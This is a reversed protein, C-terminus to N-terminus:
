IDFIRAVTKNTIEALEAVSIGYIEAVFTAIDKIHSPNNPTGRFPVPTLYPSDTELVISNIDINKLTDKLNCNKFTVVGNIGLAFGMKIYEKAVELSGSFSHIVGFNHHRKLIDITDQTADRSHIVVPLNLKEALDLQYEFMEIQKDRTEKTYHYDLGIEGIGVIKKDINNFITLDVEELVNEPHIGIVGYMNDFQKTLSIVEKSSSTNYGANIIRDVGNNKALSLINGIEGQYYEKLVHCHTDCFM